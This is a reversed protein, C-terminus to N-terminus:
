KTNFLLPHSHTPTKVLGEDTRTVYVTKGEGFGRNYILDEKTIVLSGYTKQLYQHYGDDPIDEGRWLSKRFGYISSVFDNVIDFIDVKHNIRFRKDDPDYNNYNFPSVASVSPNKLINICTSLWKPRFTLDSDIKFVYQGESIALCNTFSRGVGRNGGRNCIIKSVYGENFLKITEIESEIDDDNNIILEFPLDATAHISKVCERLWQSRKYALICLSAIM